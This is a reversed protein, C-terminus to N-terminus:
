FPRPAEEGTATLVGAARAWALQEERWRRRRAVLGLLLALFLPAAVAGGVALPDLPRDQSLVAVEGGHLTRNESALMPEALLWGEVTASTRLQPALRARYREQAAPDLEARRAAWQLHIPDESLLLAVPPGDLVGDAQLAVLARFGRTPDGRLVAHRADVVCEEFRVHGRPPPVQREAVDQCNIEVVPEIRVITGLLALGSSACLGVLLVALWARHVSRTM